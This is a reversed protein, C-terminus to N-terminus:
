PTVIAHLDRCEALFSQEIDAPLVLVVCANPVGKPQFCVAAIGDDTQLCCCVRGSSTEGPSSRAAQREEDSPEVKGRLVFGTLRRGDRLFRLEVAPTDGHVLVDKEWGILQMRNVALVEPNLALGVLRRMCDGLGSCDEACRATSARTKAITDAILAAHVIQPAGRLFGILEPGVLVAILLIAAAAAGAWRTWRMAREPSETELALASRVRGELGPPVPVRRAKAFVLRKLKRVSEVRAACAPCSGIHEHFTREEDGDLEGDVGAHLSERVRDCDMTM